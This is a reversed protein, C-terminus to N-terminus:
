RSDGIQGGCQHRAAVRRASRIRNRVRNRVRNRLTLSAVVGLVGGAVAGAAFKGWSHSTGSAREGSLVAADGAVDGGGESAHAAAAAVPFPGGEARHRGERGPLLARLTEPLLQPALRPIPPLPLEFDFSDPFPPFDPLALDDLQQSLWDCSAGGEASPAARGSFRQRLSGDLRAPM